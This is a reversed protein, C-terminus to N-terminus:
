DDRHTRVPSWRIGTRSGLVSFRPLKREAVRRGASRSRRHLCEEHFIVPIGLRSEEVFFRQIANKLQAMERTNKGTGADSPSGVQGRGHGGAFATRAKADDFNGDDDVLTKGKERWICVRQAAKEELSTRSLLDKVRPASPLKANRYAPFGKPNRSAAALRKKM